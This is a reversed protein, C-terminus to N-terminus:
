IIVAGPGAPHSTQSQQAQDAPATTRHEAKLQNHQHRCSFCQMNPAKDQLASPTSYLATIDQKSLLQMKHLNNSNATSALPGVTQLTIGVTKLFQLVIHDHSSHHHREKVM